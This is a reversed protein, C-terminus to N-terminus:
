KKEKLKELVGPVVTENISDYGASDLVVRDKAIVVTVVRDADIGWGAPGAREGPFVTWTTQSLQLSQQAKPLYAKTKEVDETLWVAVVQVDRRDKAILEKDLEKLFRATPRDFKDAAVFVFVAPGEKREAAMDVDKGAADGSMVLVKAEPLKEGAKPGSATQAVAVSAAHFLCLCVCGLILCMHRFRYPNPSM